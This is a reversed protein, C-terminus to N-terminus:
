RPAAKRFVYMRMGNPVALTPGHSGGLAPAHLVHALRSLVMGLSAYQYDWAQGELRFAPQLARALTETTFYIIHQPIKISPSRSGLLRNLVHDMDPTTVFFLGGPKLVRDLWRVFRPIEPLHEVVDFAYVMDLTGPAIADCVGFADTAEARFGLKRCAAVSEQSVDCAIPDTGFLERAVPLGFGLAAGIELVQPTRAEGLFPRVYALRRRYTRAIREAEAAYDLYGHQQDADQYYNNNYIEALLEPTPLPTLHQSGCGACEALDFPPFSWRVRKKATAGCVPCARDSGSLDLTEGAGTVLTTSQHLKSM